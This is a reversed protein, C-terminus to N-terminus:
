IVALFKEIQTGNDDLLIIKIKREKHTHSIYDIIHEKQVCMIYDDLQIVLKRRHFVM